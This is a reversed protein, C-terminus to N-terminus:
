RMENGSYNGCQAPFAKVGGYTAAATAAAAAATNPANHTQLHLKEAVKKEVDMQHKDLVEGRDRM